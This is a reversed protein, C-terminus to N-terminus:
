AIYSNNAEAVEILYQDLSNSKWSHQEDMYEFFNYLYEKCAMDVVNLSVGFACYAYDIDPLSESEKLKKIVKSLQQNGTVRRYASKTKKYIDPLYTDSIFKNDVYIPIVPFFQGNSEASGIIGDLVTNGTSHEYIYISTPGYAYKSTEKDSLEVTKDLVISDTITSLTDTRIVGGGIDVTSTTIVEEQIISNYSQIHKSYQTTNTVEVSGVAVTTIEKEYNKEFTIYGGSLTSAIIAGVVNPRSDSFSSITQNTVNITVAVTNSTDSTLTWGTMSPFALVDTAPYLNLNSLGSVSKTRYKVYLYTKTQDFGTAVFSDVVGSAFTLTITNTTKDYDVSYSTGVLTPHNEYVRQDAWYGYLGQDIEASIVEATKNGTTPIQAAIQTFDNNGDLGVTSSKYEIIDTYNNPRDSNSWSNFNRFVTGPGSIYCKAIHEGMSINKSSMVGGLVSNKLYNQRNTEEGALNIVTSSVSIRTGM